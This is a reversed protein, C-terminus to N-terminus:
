KKFEKKLKKYIQKIDVSVVKTNAVVSMFNEDGQWRPVVHLHIHDPFGAGASKGMNIGLNFGNPNFLKKIIKTSQKALQMMENIEIDSLEYIEGIHRYPAILIHGTNYPYLNMIIFNEKGRKIIPANTNKVADCLICVNDKPNALSKIYKSRWPALLYKKM